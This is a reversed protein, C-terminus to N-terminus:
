SACAHAPLLLWYTHVYKYHYDLSTIGGDIDEVLVEWESGNMDASRLISVGAAVLLYPARETCSIKQGETRCPAFVSMFIMYM